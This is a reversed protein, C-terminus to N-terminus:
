AYPIVFPHREFVLVSNNHVKGLFAEFYKLTAKGRHNGDIFAFDVKDVQKLLPELVDDFDGQVCKVYPLNEHVFTQHAISLIQPCGEITLVNSKRNVFAMYMTGIGLSTGLEVITQPSFRVVLRSLLEGYKPRVAACRAIQSVTRTQQPNRDGGTGLDTIELKKHDNLYSKRIGAIKDFFYYRQKQCVTERVLDFVFPSHIGYGKRHRATFLYAIFHRVKYWNM